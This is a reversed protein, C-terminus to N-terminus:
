GGSNLYSILDSMQNATFRPWAIGKAKMQKLMQPGHLWLTSVMSIASFTGQRGALRPAGSSPDNHCTACGKETFVQRGHVSNGDQTLLQEAWLYGVIQRMEDRNLKPPPQAMKPVHNWMDVAIDTLTKGTLRPRLELKATHCGACGKTRFLVEGGPGGETEIRTDVHQTERLNRLYVLVDSLQQSTLTPWRIGEKAFAERMNAAHNWM